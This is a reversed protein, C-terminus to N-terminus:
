FVFSCPTSCRPKPRQLEAFETFTKGILFDQVLCDVTIYKRTSQNEFIFYGLNQIYSILQRSFSNKKKKKEGIQAGKDRNSKCSSQKPLSPAPLPHVAWFTCNHDNLGIVYNHISRIYKDSM